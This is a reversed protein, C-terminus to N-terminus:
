RRRGFLRWGLPPRHPAILSRLYALQAQVYDVLSGKAGYKALRHIHPGSLQVRAHRAGDRVPLGDAGLRYWDAQVFYADEYDDVGTRLTIRENRRHAPPQWLGRVITSVPTGLINM